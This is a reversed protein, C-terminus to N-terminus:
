KYRVETFKRESGFDRRLFRAFLIKTHYNLSMSGRDICEALCSVKIWTIGNADNKEGLSDPFCERQEKEVYFFMSRGFIKTSSLFETPSINLGTEERTERIACDVFNEGEEMGGKPIGWKLARSQVLLVSDNKKDYIFIGARQRKDNRRTNEYPYNTVYINCCKKRCNYHLMQSKIPTDSIKMEKIDSLFSDLYGKEKEDQNFESRESM